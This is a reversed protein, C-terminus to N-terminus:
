YIVAVLVGKVDEFRVKIPDEFRNNDGKVIYYIGKKDEGKEIVRHIIIGKETQYSIVDGLNISQPNEPSIEIAHSTEDIFPDMSNTDTFGAWIADQIDLIVKDNYVKIQEEKVWNSPSHQEAGGFITTPLHADSKSIAALSSILLGILLLLIINHIKKM